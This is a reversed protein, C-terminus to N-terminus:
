TKIYYNSITKKKLVVFKKQIKYYNLIACKDIMFIDMVFVCVCLIIMLYECTSKPNETPIKNMKIYECKLRRYVRSHFVSQDFATYLQMCSLRFSVGNM